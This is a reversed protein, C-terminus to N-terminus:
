DNRALLETVQDNNAARDTVLVVHYGFKTAIPGLLTGAPPPESSDPFLARDFAEVMKGPGFLGLDGGSSASACTSERRAVDALSAGGEIEDLVREADDRSAVLVHSARVRRDERSFDQNTFASAFADFLGMRLPAVPARAYRRAGFADISAVCLLIFAIARTM